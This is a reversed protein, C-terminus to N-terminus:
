KKLNRINGLYLTLIKQFINKWSEVVEKFLMAELFYTSKPCGTSIYLSLTCINKQKKNEKNISKTRYPFMLYCRTVASKM